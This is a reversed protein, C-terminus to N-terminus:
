DNDSSDQEYIQYEGDSTDVDPRGAGASPFNDFLEQLYNKAYSFPQQTFDGDEGALPPSELEDLEEEEEEDEIEDDDDDFYDENEQENKDDNSGRETDNFKVPSEGFAHGDSGENTHQQEEEEDPRFDTKHLQMKKSKEFRESASKLLDKAGVKPYISLFRVQVCLRLSSLVYSSFWGTSCLCNPLDPPKGILEQIYEDALDCLQFCTQNKSPFFKFACIDRWRVKLEEDSSNTDGFKRLPPPVRFDITQYKRSEPDKRPDYGKRIWFLRFPGTSFYYATRFLLRKLLHAGFDLGEDHLRHTLSHRHWIPREDFLKAVAMQWHWHGKGQPIFEEWHFKKPVEKIGFDVALCPEIDMEWRHQVVGEKKKKLSLAAPPRLVLKEPVDKPSFLPPMLVMLDERDLDTLGGKEFLPDVEKWHRKKRRAVDAHVALVHQYDVMGSFHYVESVRAVIDASLNAPEEHIRVEGGENNFAMENETLNRQQGKTGSEPCSPIPGSSTMDASSCVSMGRSTGADQDVSCKMKSIKLLLNNSSHCEGYAPHSYPDEPRFRLELRNSDNSQLCNSDNSQLCRVKSIGELGGLTEIARSTSTPYGPYDVAFVNAEPLVGFVTNDRIIGM